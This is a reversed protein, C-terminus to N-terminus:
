DGKEAIRGISLNIEYRYEEILKKDYENKGVAKLNFKSWESNM